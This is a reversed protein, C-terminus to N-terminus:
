PYLHGLPTIKWLFFPRREADTGVTLAFGQCHNTLDGFVTKGYQPFDFYSVKGKAKLFELLLKSQTAKGSGDGGELVILLGKFM